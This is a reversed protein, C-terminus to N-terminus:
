KVETQIGNKRRLATTDSKTTATSDKATTVTNTGKNNRRWRFLDKWTEFDRQLSIGIGQTNLTAKTFYRDNTQNYARLFTNSNEKIRWRVDFDGVFNSSRTLSNDRYGFNGNILLRDDFLQGSLVGEVDLDEWGREGTSLGTGFNWKSDNGILDTLMQNIQGSITSSLLSNVAQSSASEGNARAMENTYFRGVGLLYVIQTNMEEETSIMSRVLQKTEDNVNPLNLDFKFNMNGLKGTIDLICVVKIKNSASMTRSATLDYLPVSNLTHWCILHINADFPDGNFEVKSGDQLSLDRFIIDQLYIRYKGRVINYNGWMQFSGKNHYSINLNSYGYTSMYGDEKNDMRLKIECDPNVNLNFNMYIDGKYEDEEDTLPEATSESTPLVADNNTPFLTPATQRKSRFTVFSSSINADPTAVDYAFVSGKTPTIYGNIYLPNGDSGHIGLKGNGYVTALFKDSNFKKEDYCKLEKMEVDFDYTFNKLNGHGVRGNVIGTNGKDDKIKIDEFLFNDHRLRITDGGVHYMVNTARLRLNIYAAVDGILDIHSLPGTVQLNGSVSGDIESFVSGLFGHLFSADTNDTGINLQIKNDAPSVFGNLTTKRLPKDQAASASLVNFLNAKDGTDNDMCDIFSGAMFIGKVDEDWYAHVSGTGLRGGQLTFDNLGIYADLKIGKHIDSIVARGTARGDFEVSHFNILDTVYGIQLENLDVLMSDTSEKSITGNVHVYQNGHGIKIDNCAIRGGDIEISAPSVTWTTDNFIIDSKHLRVDTILKNNRKRFSTTADLEGKMGRSTRENDWSLTTNLNDNAAQGTINFSTSGSEEIRKLHTDFDMSKNRSGCVISVDEYTTGDYELKPASVNLDIVSSRTDINAKIDIPENMAFDMGTTKRLFDSDMVKATMNFHSQGKSVGQIVSPLYTALTAKVDDVLSTYPIYGKVSADLFDSSIKIDRLMTGENHVDVHFKALREYEGKTDGISLTDINIYGEADNLDKGTLHAHMAMSVDAIDKNNFLRTTTPDFQDITATIDCEKHGDEGGLTLSGEVNATLHSDDIGLKGDWTNDECEIDITANGYTEGGYEFSEIHGSAKGNIIKASLPLTTLADIQATLKGLKEDKTIVGLNLETANIQASLEDGSQGIDLKVDGAESTSLALFGTAHEKTYDGKGTAEIEGLSAIANSIQENGTADRVINGVWEGRAQLGNLAINIRGFDKGLHEVSGNALLTFAGDDGSARVDKVQLGGNKLQAHCSIDISENTEKFGDILYHLDNLCIHADLVLETTALNNNKKRGSAPMRFSVDDIHLSSSGIRLTTPHIMFRKDNGELTTTLENLTLGSNKETFRLRRVSVNVSDSRLAKLAINACLNSIKIHNPDIEGPKREKYYLDYEADVHRIILSNIKFDSKTGTSDNSSFKDIIFQFNYPKQETEKYVKLKAGFFQATNIVIDKDKIMSYMDLSASTRSSSLMLVNKQDYIKLDDIILRNLFGISVTGAEVKCNLQNSLINAVKAALQKQMFPLSFLLIVAAYLAILSEISIRIFGKISIRKKAM